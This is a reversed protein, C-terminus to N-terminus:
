KKMIRTSTLLYFGICILFTGVYSNWSITEINGLFYDALTSCPITLVIASAAWVPTTIAILLLFCMNFILGLVAIGLIGYGQLLTPWQFTEIEYLHFVLMPPWCGILNFAGLLVTVYNSFFLNSPQPALYHKYMAEYGGFVVANLLGLSVGLTWSTWMTTSPNMEQGGGVPHEKFPPVRPTTSTISSPQLLTICSVGLFTILLAVLTLFHPSRHPHLLSFSSYKKAPTPAVVYTTSRSSSGSTTLWLSMFYAFFPSLNYLTTLQGVPLYNLGCYWLYAALTGLCMMGYVQVLFHFTSTSRPFSTKLIRYM